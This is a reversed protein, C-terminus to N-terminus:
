GGTHRSVYAEVLARREGDTARELVISDGDITVSIRHREQQRELWGRLVGIVATFVGGSASFAVLLAGVTVADAGKAGEAAAGDPECVVSDVDLETLEVRLRRGLREAVEPDTEPDVELVVRAQSV